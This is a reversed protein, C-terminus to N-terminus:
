VGLLMSPNTQVMQRIEDPTAGCKLMVSIFYKMASPPPPAYTQGTDTSMVCRDVGLQRMMVLMDRPDITAECHIFQMLPLCLCFDFEFFVGYRNLEHLQEPRFGIMPWMPHLILMKRVGMERAKPVLQLTEEASLHGTALCVDAEAIIRIVEVTEATLEGNQLITIAETRDVPVNVARYQIKERAIVHHLTDGTPFYIIRAGDGHEIAARVARSNIGGCVLNMVLSGCTQFGPVLRNAFYASATTPFGVDKIAVAKMGVEKCARALDVAHLAHNQPALHPNVHLHMDIAGQMLEGAIDEIPSVRSM